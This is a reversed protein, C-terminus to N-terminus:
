DMSAVVRAASLAAIEDTSLGLESLIEVTHEGLAPSARKSGTPTASMKVAPGVVRQPGTVTHELEWIMGDAAAQEDDAMEEPFQVPAVPVGAADLDAVWEAATRTLFKERIWSKWGRVREINEPERADYGPEDSREGEIGLVRRMGERNQPTLAGLVFAGDKARYGGYYLGYASAFRRGMSRIELLEDYSAGQDRAASLSQLMPDRVSADSVPERMVTRGQLFLGMRLLSASLYQGEGALARHYLAACIAMAGAFGAAYDAVPISIAAPAGDDDRKGDTAMLGSYAQAVIDSGARGAEPGSDGFGTIQFYILDPRLQRLTEYDIGLREPVGLRYNMVVIDTQPMMRHILAQGRADRLDIVLGRKGRNTGQFLKGEHPVVAGLNRHSDGQLPEVKIVDAGLDALNMGAVPGAVIQSFELVRVGRLPGHLVEQAPGDGM